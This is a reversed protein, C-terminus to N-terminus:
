LAPADLVKYPVKAIKRQKQKPVIVSEEDFGCLPNAKFTPLRILPSSNESHTNHSM